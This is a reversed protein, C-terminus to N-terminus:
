GAGGRSRQCGPSLPRATLELEAVGRHARHGGHRPASLGQRGSVNCGAAAVDDAVESALRSKGIGPEGGIVVIGGIGEVMRESLQRLALFEASRGVFRATAVRAV